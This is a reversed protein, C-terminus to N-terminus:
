LIGESNLVARVNEFGDVQFSRIGMRASAEVNVRSDDFFRIRGPDVGLRDVVALFADPDPKIRGLLHSSFASDFREILSGMQAWHLENCNSFCSVQYGRGQLLDIAEEVGPYPGLIWTAMERAVEAPELGLRWEEVFRESFATPSIQGLEFSRVAPSALWRSRLADDDLLPERGSATVMAKVSSLTSTRVLVGGLDFLLASALKVGVGTLQRVL